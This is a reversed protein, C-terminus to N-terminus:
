CVDAMDVATFFGEGGPWACREEAAEGDPSLREGELDEDDMGVAAEVVLLGVEVRVFEVLPGSDARAETLLGVWVEVRLMDEDAGM